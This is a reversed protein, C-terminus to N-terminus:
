SLQPRERGCVRRHRRPRGDSGGRYSRHARRKRGPPRGEGGGCGGLECRHVKVTDQQRKFTATGRLKDIASMHRRGQEFGTDHQHAQLLFLALRNRRRRRRKRRRWGRRGGSRLALHFRRLRRYAGRRRRRIFCGCPRPASLFGSCDRRSRARQGHHVRRRGGGGGRAVGTNQNAQEGHRAHNRRRRGERFRECNINRTHFNRRVIELLLEIRRDGGRVAVGPTNQTTKGSASQDPTIRPRPHPYLGRLYRDRFCRAVRFFVFGGVILPQKM